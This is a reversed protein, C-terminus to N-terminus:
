RRPNRALGPRVQQSLHFLVVGACCSGRYARVYLALWVGDRRDNPNRNGLPIRGHGFGARHEVCHGCHRLNSVADAARLVRRASSRLSLGGLWDPCRGRGCATGRCTDDGRLAMFVADDADGDHLGRHRFVRRSWFSWYGTYGSLIGWSTALVVWFFIIYLYSLYYDAMGLYPLSALVAVAPATILLKKM